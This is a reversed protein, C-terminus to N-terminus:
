TRGLPSRDRNVGWWEPGIDVARILDALPIVSTNRDAYCVVTEGEVSQVTGPLGEPFIIFDGRKPKEAVM